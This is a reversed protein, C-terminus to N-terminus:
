RLVLNAKHPLQIDENIQLMKRFFLIRISCMIFPDNAPPTIMPAEEFKSPAFIPIPMLKIRPKMPPKIM